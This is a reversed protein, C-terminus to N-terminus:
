TMFTHMGCTPSYRAAGEPITLQFGGGDFDGCFAKVTDPTTGTDDGIGDWEGTIAIDNMM